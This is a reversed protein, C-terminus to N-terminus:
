PQIPIDGRLAALFASAILAGLHPYGTSNPHTGDNCYEGPFVMPPSVAAARYLVIGATSLQDWLGHMAANNAAVNLAGHGLLNVVFRASPEAAHLATLLAVYNTLASNNTGINVCFLDVSHNTGGVGYLTALTAQKGEITDGDIGEHHSTASVTGSTQTGVFQLATWGAAVAAANLVPRYGDYLNNAGTNSGPDDGFGHTISDGVM